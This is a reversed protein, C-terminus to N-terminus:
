VALAADDSAEATLEHAPPFYKCILVGLCYLGFTPVFLYLMTVVDPTPTLVASLVALIMVAHRWKAWYDEWGFLGVRNLVFMVLPTQFSVGFVLPLLIAFSLWENLRIEPDVDIFLNFGLLAKVAGPMVFFQCVVAGVVFLGVSPWLFKYVYRKEHPYLGAAVFAWIQYIIWPSGLVVGCLLSVKFYVMMGEPASLVTVYQKTGLQTEGKNSLYSLYGPYVKVRLEIEAKAPEGKVGLAEALPGTPVVMPMEVPTGLLRAREEASLNTLGKEDVRASLAAAEDESLKEGSLAEALKQISRQNRKNYFDRVQTEVPEKILALMPRGVGFSPHGTLEGVYDLVFGILLFFLLARLAKILRKRLEEIHDGFSMRTDDFFDEPYQYKDSGFM